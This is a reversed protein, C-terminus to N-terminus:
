PQFDYDTYPMPHKSRFAVVEPIAEIKTCLDNLKPFKDVINTPVGGFGSKLGSLFAQLKLDAVSVKDGVLWGTGNKELANEFIPLYFPLGFKEDEVYRKLAAAAEEDSWPGDSICWRYGKMVIMAIPLIAEEVSDMFADVKMADVSDEPYLGTHKGFYRLIATSQAIVQPEKGEEEVELFPIQGLPNKESLKEKLGPWEEGKIAKHSYPLQLPLLLLLCVILESTSLALVSSLNVAFTNNVKGIAAALRMPEVRGPAAFYTITLKPAM